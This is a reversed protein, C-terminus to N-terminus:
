ALKGKEPSNRMVLHWREGLGSVEEVLGMDVLERLAEEYESQTWQSGHLVDIAQISSADGGLAKGLHWGTIYGGKLEYLISLIRRAGESLSALSVVSQIQTEPATVTVGHTDLWYGGGDIFAEKVRAYVTVQVLDGPQGQKSDESM